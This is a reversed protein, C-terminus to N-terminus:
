GKVEEGTVGAGEGYQLRVSVGDDAARAVARAAVRHWWTAPYGSAKQTKSMYYDTRPVAIAAPTAAMIQSHLKDADALLGMIQSHLKDAENDADALLERIKDSAWAPIPGGAHWTYVSRESVDLYRALWGNTVNLETVAAALEADTMTETVETTGTSM